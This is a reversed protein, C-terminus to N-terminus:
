FIPFVSYWSSDLYTSISTDPPAAMSSFQKCPSFTYIRHNRREVWLCFGLLHTAHEWFISCSPDCCCIAGIQFSDLHGGVNSHICQLTDVFPVSYLLLLSSRCTYAVNRFAMVFKINILIALTCSTHNWKYLCPLLLQFPAHLRSSPQPYSKIQTNRVLHTCNTYIWQAM